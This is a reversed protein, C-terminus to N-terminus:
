AISGTDPVIVAHQIARALEDANFPKRLAVTGSRRAHPPLISGSMYIFPVPQMIMIRMMADIGSGRALRVDVLMLEPDHHQAASVADDETAAIACVAHGMYELLDSLVLGLLDDDEVILIRLSRSLPLPAM